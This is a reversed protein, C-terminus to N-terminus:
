RRAMRHITSFYILKAVCFCRRINRTRRGIASQKAEGDSEGDDVHDKAAQRAKTLLSILDPRYFQSRERHEVTTNVVNRFYNITKSEFLYIKFWRMLTPICDFLLLKVGKIGDFNTVIKGTEYFENDRHLMSNMNLGFACTAIVDTTYRTFADKLEYVGAVEDNTDESQTRIENSIHQMFVATTEQILEFMSRMKNGTFAPSLVTRMNKWKQDKLFFLTRGLIPDIVDGQHNVFHDFQQITIKRILEPDRIVFVPQTLEYLGYFQEGAFRNYLRHMTMAFSEKGFVMQDICGLLPWGRVFPVNRASFYWWKKAIFNYIFALIAIGIALIITPNCLLAITSSIVAM